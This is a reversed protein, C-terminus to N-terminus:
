SGKRPPRRLYRPLAYAKLSYTGVTFSQPQLMDTQRGKRRAGSGSVRALRPTADGAVGRVAIVKSSSHRRAYALVDDTSYGADIAALSIELQRGRFNTWRRQLLLDLNRQADPESIHKGITGVDIVFKRCHEGHGIVQWECRDLQCDVGLTLILAGKPVEGRAYHSKAARAALEEPPRGEGKAEYPKGLTDNWFTKESAPDGRSRLWERAIQPWTQLILLRVLDM